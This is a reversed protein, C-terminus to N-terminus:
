KKDLKKVLSKNNLSHIIHNCINSSAIITGDNKIDLIALNFIDRSDITANDNIYSFFYQYFEEQNSFIYIDQEGINDDNKCIENNIRNSNLLLLKLQTLFNTKM